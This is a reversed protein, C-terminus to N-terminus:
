FFFSIVVVFLCNAPLPGDGLVRRTRTVTLTCYCHACFLVVLSVALRGCLGVVWACCCFSFFVSFCSVLCVLAGIFFADMSLRIACRMYTHTYAYSAYCFIHQRFFCFHLFINTFMVWVGPRCEVAGILMCRWVYKSRTSHM